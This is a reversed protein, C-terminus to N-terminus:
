NDPFNTAAERTLIGGWLHLVWEISCGELARSGGPHGPIDDLGHGGAGGVIFDGINVLRGDSLVVANADEDWTTGPPREVGFPDEVDELNMVVCGEVPEITGQM